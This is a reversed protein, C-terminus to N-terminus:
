IYQANDFTFNFSYEGKENVTVGLLLNSSTNTIITPIVFILLPNGKYSSKVIDFSGDSIQEVFDKCQIALQSKLFDVDFDDDFTYLYQQINIGLSPISPYFGPKGFLLTLINNVITQPETLVKPKNYVNAGFQPDVSM